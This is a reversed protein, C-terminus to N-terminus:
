AHNHSVMAPCQRPSRAYHTSRCLSLVNGQLNKYPLFMQCPSNTHLAIDVHLAIMVEMPENLCLCQPLSVTIACLGRGTVPLPFTRLTHRPM